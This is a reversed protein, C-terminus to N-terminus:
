NYTYLKYNYLHNSNLTMNPLMANVKSLVYRMVWVCHDNITNVPGTYMVTTTEVCLTIIAASVNNQINTDIKVWINVSIYSNGEARPGAWSETVQLIPGPYSSRIAIITHHQVMCVVLHVKKTGRMM